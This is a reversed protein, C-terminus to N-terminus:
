AEKKKKAKKKNNGFSLAEKACAPRRCTASSNVWNNYCQKDLNGFLITLNYFFTEFNTFRPMEDMGYPFTKATNWLFRCLIDGRGCQRSMPYGM